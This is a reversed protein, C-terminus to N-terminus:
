MWDSQLDSVSLQHSFLLVERDNPYFRTTRVTALCITYRSRYANLLSLWWILPRCAHAEPPMREQKSSSQRWRARRAALPRHDRRQLGTWLM